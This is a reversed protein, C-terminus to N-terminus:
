DVVCHHHGHSFLDCLNGCLESEVRYGYVLRLGEFGRRMMRDWYVVHRIVAAGNLLNPGSNAVLVEQIHAGYM